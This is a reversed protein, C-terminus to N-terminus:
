PQLIWSRGGLDEQRSSMTCTDNIPKLLLTTGDLEWQYTGPHSLCVGDYTNLVVQDGSVDYRGLHRDEEPSLELVFTGDTNFQILDTYLLHDPKYTGTPFGGNATATATPVPASPAACAGMAISGSILVLILWYFRNNM